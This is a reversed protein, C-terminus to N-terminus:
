LEATMHLQDGDQSFYLVQLDTVLLLNRLAGAVQVRPIVSQHLVDGVEVQEDVPIVLDTLGYELDFVWENLFLQEPDIFNEEGAFIVKVPITFTVKTSKSTPM